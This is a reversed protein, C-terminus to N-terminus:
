EKLKNRLNELIDKAIDRGGIGFAIGSSIVLLAVFGGVIIQVIESAVGLQSLIALFAFIWIAWRIIAGLFRTYGIEMKGIIAKFFKEAFDAVIVAVVFIAVAVVLNPLWAVIAKLFGAFQGLGLIEVAVLLFVIVLIWKILGGIFDSVSMKFDAKEFAQEWRTREFIKDVKLKKLIEAILKGIWVAIFWGIIFVILAGILKPLFDIFGQWFKQLSEVTISSWDQIQNM